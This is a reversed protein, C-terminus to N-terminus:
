VDERSETEPVFRDRRIDCRGLLCALVGPLEIWSLRCEVLQMCDVVEDVSMQLPTFVLFGRRPNFPDACDVTRLEVRADELRRVSERGSRRSPRDFAVRPVLRRLQFQRRGVEGPFCKTVGLRVNLERFRETGRARASEVHCLGRDITEDCNAILQLLLLIRVPGFLRVNLADCRSSPKCLRAVAVGFGELERALGRRALVRGLFMGDSGARDNRRALQEGLQQEFLGSRRFRERLDFSAQGDCGVPM